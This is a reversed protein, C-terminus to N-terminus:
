IAINTGSDGQYTEQLDAEESGNGDFVHKRWLYIFGPVLLTLFVLMEVFGLMRLEHFIVAWPYLSIAGAEFLVFAMAVLCLNLTPVEGNRAPAPEADDTECPRYRLRRILLGGGFVVALLALFLLVAVYNQFYGYPM